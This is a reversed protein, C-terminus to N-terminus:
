FFAGIVNLIIDGTIKSVTLITVSPCLRVIETLPLKKLKRLVRRGML